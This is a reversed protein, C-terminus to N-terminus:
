RRLGMHVSIQQTLAIVGRLYQGHYYQSDIYVGGTLLAAALAVVKM